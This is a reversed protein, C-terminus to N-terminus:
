ELRWADVLEDLYFMHFVLFYLRCFMFYYFINDYFSRWENKLYLKECMYMMQDEDWGFGIQSWTKAYYKAKLTKMRSEIHSSWMHANKIEDYGKNLYTDM